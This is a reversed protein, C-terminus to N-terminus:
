GDLHQLAERLSGCRSVRGSLTVTITSETNPTWRAQILHCENSGDQHVVAFSCMYRGAAPEVCHTRALRDGAAHQASYQNATGALDTAFEAAAPTASHAQVVAAQTPQTSAFGTVGFYMAAATAAVIACFGAALKM